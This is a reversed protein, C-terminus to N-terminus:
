RPLGRLDVNKVNRTESYWRKWLDEDFQYNQGTIANLAALVEGNRVQRKEVRTSSGASLGGGGGGASNSGFSPSIGGGTTITVKQETVLADILAPVARFDQLRGAVAAATNIHPLSDGELYPILSPVVHTARREVLRQIATERVTGMPDHVAWHALLATADGGPIRGLMDVYERRMREVKEDKLMEGIAFVALPDQVRQFNLIAETGQRGGVQRRWTRMDRLYGRRRKELEEDALLRDLEGQSYWRGQYRVYGLDLYSQEPHVWRGDIKTYGLAKRAADHDPDFAVTRQLHFTREPDLKNEHCWESLAFHEPAADPIAAARSAYEVLIADPAVAEEVADKPLEILLGPATLIVTEGDLSTAPHIEARLKGGSELAVTTNPASDAGAAPSAGVAAFLAAMASAGLAAFLRHSM